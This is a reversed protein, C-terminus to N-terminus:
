GTPVFDLLSFLWACKTEMGLSFLDWDSLSEGMDGITDGLKFAMGDSSGGAMGAINDLAFPIM